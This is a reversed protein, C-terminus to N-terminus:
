EKGSVWAFYMSLALLLFLINWAIPFVWNPPTISPKISNFWESDTEQTTFLSGIFAVLYVIALCIVLVKWNFKRSKEPRKKIYRRPSYLKYIKKEEFLSSFEQM